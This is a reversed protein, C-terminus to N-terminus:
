YYAVLLRERGYPDTRIVVERAGGKECLAKAEQAHESDCELWMEGNRQLYHSIDSCIRSILSLGKDGAFLAELPEYNGVSDPLTRTDPIYPPNTLIVDFANNHLPTFLDGMRIDARGQDLNNSTINKLITARHREESEVFTVRANPCHKLVACGIAGSGACLDLVSLARTGIHSVAEETWWETEPRPILPHSDLHITLGLFPQTGIVYALPEGESLRRLDETIDKTPDGHYKEERLARIDKEPISM